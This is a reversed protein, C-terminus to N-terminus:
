SKLLFNSMLSRIDVQMQFKRCRETMGDFPGQIIQQPVNQCERMIAASLQHLEKIVKISEFLSLIFARIRKLHFNNNRM